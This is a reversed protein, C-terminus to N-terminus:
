AYGMKPYVLDRSFNTNVGVHDDLGMALYRFADAGHSAWDHVPRPKLVGLKSDWDARYMKLCEIGRATKAKDFWCRSLIMRVANIGDEVAHQKVVQCKLGLGELMEERTKGTGLERAKVDHPLLHGGYLYPKRDIVKVYHSLPEGTAEYYDIVHVERGVMQCFWISTADAVGLDWATWVRAASDYPVSTIRKDAEAEVIAKGYYAGVIAAEFSCEMEQAYQEPTLLSRLSALEDPPLLGTEAARLVATFWHEPDAVAQSYIEHFANRGKPTGIFTAWGQRDALAPRIVEPWARPDMDAYEDLVVGDFYLGRMRDYNDAGYLRIRAGNHGFVVTLDSERQEVGPIDATFRKLYTWAVDKSQTYTPSIYGYRAEPKACRLAADVLDMVCAVTKGARRHAVICAWRQQRRHYDIFQSRAIYGLEIQKTKM